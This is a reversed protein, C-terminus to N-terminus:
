KSEEEDDSEDEDEDEDMVIELEELAKLIKDLKINLQKFQEISGDSQMPRM